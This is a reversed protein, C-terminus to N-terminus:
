PLFAADDRANGGLALALVGSRSHVGTKVFISKFHDQATYGAIGMRRALPENELGAALLALAQRERATLGYSRVFVGLRAAPLCEQITVAVPPSAVPTGSSDPSDMRAARLAAWQGGGIHVRAAAAHVDVRYEKALLQGVVNYVEAPIASNPGPSRQLLGLWQGASTTQGLVHMDEDMVLVAQPPPPPTHREDDYSRFQAARSRRFGTTIAPALAALFGTEAESFPPDDSGRWLDLWSWIGYQDAYVVSVIDGVGYSRLMGELPGSRSSPGGTAGALTAVPSPAASLATWRNVPSTYKAKILQPLRAAVGEPIQAMPSVGTATEPDSLPWAYASFGLTRRM